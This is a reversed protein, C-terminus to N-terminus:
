ALALIEGSFPGNETCENQNQKVYNGFEQYIRSYM